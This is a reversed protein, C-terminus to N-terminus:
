RKRNRVFRSALEIAAELSSPDAVGKGAIDFAVGHDVSTRIIPLGLTINVTRQFDLLKVPILGQDHYMCVVADYPSRGDTLHQCFLTDSPLPGALSFKKSFKRTLFNMEPKILRKEEEGFLGNEGAHPNLAAVAILPKKIGWLDTLADATQIITRRLNKRDLIKPVNSLATHTTVLAVRLKSNALMMTVENSNKGCLHALLETHGPFNYGGLQLREKSIPATVIADAIKKQVLQVAKEIAWGSQFGAIAAKNLSREAPASLLWVFPESRKPCDRLIPEDSAEVIPVKLKEFPKKAGICLLSVDKRTKNTRIVKWIIEPGVGAPDGVTVALIM